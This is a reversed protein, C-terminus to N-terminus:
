PLWWVLLAAVATILIAVILGDLVLNLILQSQVTM